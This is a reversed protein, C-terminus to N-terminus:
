LASMWPVEFPVVWRIYPLPESRAAHVPNLASVPPTLPRDDGLTLSITRSHPLATSTVVVTAAPPTLTEM